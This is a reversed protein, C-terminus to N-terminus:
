CLLLIVILVSLAQLDKFSFIGDAWFYIYYLFLHFASLFFDELHMSLMTEVEFDIVTNFCLLLFTFIFIFLFM